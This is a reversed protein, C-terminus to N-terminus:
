LVDVASICGQEREVSLNGSALRENEEFQAELARDQELQTEEQEELTM